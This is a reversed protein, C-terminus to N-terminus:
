NITNTKWSLGKLHYFILCNKLFVEVLNLIFDIIYNCNKSDQNYKSIKKQLNAEMFIAKKEKFELTKKKNEEKFILENKKIKKM